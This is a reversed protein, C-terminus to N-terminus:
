SDDEQFHEARADGWLRELGYFERTEKQFVHVVIDVYDILVWNYFTTGEKHWPKQGKERMGTEIADAIAKVQVDSDGHCCIFYDTVNSIDKLDLLVVDRAKKTLALEVIQHATLLLDTDKVM